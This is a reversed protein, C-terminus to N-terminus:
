RAMRSLLIEDVTRLRAAEVELACCLVARHRHPYTPVSLAFVAYNALLQLESPWKPLGFIIFVLSNLSIRQAEPALPRSNSDGRESWNQGGIVRAQGALRWSSRFPIRRPNLDPVCRIARKRKKRGGVIARLRVTILTSGAFTHATKSLPLVGLCLALTLRCRRPVSAV